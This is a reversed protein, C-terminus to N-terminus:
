FKIVAASWFSFFWYKTKLFKLLLPGRRPSSLSAKPLRSRQLYYLTLLSWLISWIMKRIYNSLPHSM